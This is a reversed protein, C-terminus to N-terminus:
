RKKIAVISKRVIIEEVTSRVPAGSLGEGKEMVDEIWQDLHRIFSIEDPLTWPMHFSTHCDETIMWGGPKIHPWFLRLSDKQQGSHHGGDDIVLDLPGTRQTIDYVMNALSADGIIITTRPDFEPLPRDEIDVGFIRTKSHHFWDQWMLISEGGAVGIELMTIPQNRIPRLLKDYFDTYQHSAKDTGRFKAMDTLSTM